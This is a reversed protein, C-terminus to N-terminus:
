SIIIKDLEGTCSLSWDLHVLKKERIILHKMNIYGQPPLNLFATNGNGPIIIDQSYNQVEKAKELNM